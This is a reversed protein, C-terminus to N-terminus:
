VLGAAQETLSTPDFRPLGALSDARTVRSFVAHLPTVRDEVFSGALLEPGDDGDLGASAVAAILAATQVATTEIALTVDDRDRFAEAWARLLAGDAILEDAFALVTHRVRAGTQLFADEADTDRARHADTPAPCVPEGDLVIRACRDLAADRGPRLDDLTQYRLRGEHPTPMAVLPFDIALRFFMGYAFRLALRRVDRSVAPPTVALLSSLTDEYLDADLVTRVFATGSIHSGAAVVVQKGKCALELGVTSMWVLGVTCLDMLSYSSLEEDPGIMRANAPLNDALRSMEALQVRNAGTSRRSGTNPHVRIVLDIEPHRRAHDITRQIWEGQSAFPSRYDETGAVEDDSSTFLAWLPREATMGLRALVDASPQPPTTFPTWGTGRGHERAALLQAVDTLERAALPVDKWARWHQRLPELSTCGVNERLTLAETRPGREHTVVRISRARALELAVRTSSQRGNFLLMADPRSEELLRDLAFCAILGSHVYSRAGREIRPDALDLDGSRFHSQVSLRVWEGVHWPGYRASLLEGAALLNSWRAAEREEDTTLYRGLWRYDMGMDAVLRTVDAQCGLCANAPRPTVAEWFQDCDTYLGDCLVYQVEAGRLRLAHLITMEWQGHLAWRNYPAYCLVRSPTVAYCDAM